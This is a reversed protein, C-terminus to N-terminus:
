KWRNHLWFYQKPNKLIMQEVIKNFEKTHNTIDKEKNSTEKLKLQPLFCLEHQGYDIRRVFTPVLPAKHKRWIAALSTNSLAAKGFFPLREENPRAHDIVFGLLEKKKLVDNIQRVGDGKKYRKLWSMGNTERLEELFKNAGKNKLAKAIGHAQCFFKTGAPGLVEFNGLHCCVSYAGKNEKLAEEMHTKGVVTTKSVLGGKHSEVAEFITLITHYLSCRGMSILKDKSYTQSFVINLNKLVTKRRLRIIDFLIYALFLSFKKKLTKPTKKLVKSLVVLFFYTLHSSTSM